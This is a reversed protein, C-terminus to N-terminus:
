RSVPPNICCQWLSVLPCVSVVLSGSIYELLVGGEGSM